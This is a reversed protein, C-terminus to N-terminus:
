EAAEAAAPALADAWRVLLRRLADHEDDPWQVILTEIRATLKEVITQEPKKPEPAQPIEAAARALRERHAAVTKGDCGVARGIERDKMKPFQTLLLEIQHQRDRRNFRLGFENASSVSHLLCDRKTGEVVTARITKCGNKVAAAVRNAGDSLTLTDGIKCLTVPPFIAGDAMAAAYEETTVRSAKARVKVSDAISEILIEQEPAAPSHDHNPSM